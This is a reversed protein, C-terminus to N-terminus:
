DTDSFHRSRLYLHKSCLMSKSFFSWGNLPYPLSSSKNATNHLSTALRCWYDRDRRNIGGGMKNLATVKSLDLRSARGYGLRCGVSLKSTQDLVLCMCGFFERKRQYIYVSPSIFSYTSIYISFATGYGIDCKHLFIVSSVCGLAHACM